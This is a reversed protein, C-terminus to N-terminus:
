DTGSIAMSTVMEQWKYSTELASCTELSSEAGALAMAFYTLLSHSCPYIMM